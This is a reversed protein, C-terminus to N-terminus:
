AMNKLLEIGINVEEMKAPLDTNQVKELMFFLTM